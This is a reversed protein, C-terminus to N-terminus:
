GQDLDKADAADSAEGGIRTGQVAGPFGGHVGLTCSTKGSKHNM